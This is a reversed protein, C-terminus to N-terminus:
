AELTASASHPNPSAFSSRAMALPLCLVIDAAWHQKAKQHDWPCCAM